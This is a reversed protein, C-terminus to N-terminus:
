VALVWCRLGLVALSHFNTPSQELAPILEQSEENLKQIQKHSTELKQKIPAAAQALLQDPKAAAQLKKAKAALSMRRHSAFAPAAHLLLEHEACLYALCQKCWHKAIRRPQSPNCQQCPPSGLEM